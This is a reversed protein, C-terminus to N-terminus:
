SYGLLLFALVNKSRAKSGGIVRIKKKKTISSIQHSIIKCLIETNDMDANERINITKRYKM